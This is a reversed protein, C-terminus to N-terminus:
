DNTNNGAYTYKTLEIVSLLHRYNKLLELADKCIYYAPHSEGMGACLGSLQPIAYSLDGSLYRGEYNATFWEMFEKLNSDKVDLLNDIM